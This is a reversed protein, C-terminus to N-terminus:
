LNLLVWDKHSAAVYCLHIYTHKGYMPVTLFNYLNFITHINFVVSNTVSNNQM